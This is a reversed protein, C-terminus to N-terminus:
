QAGRAQAKAKQLEPKGMMRRIFNDIDIYTQPVGDVVEAAHAALLEAEEKPLSDGASMLVEAYDDCSIFGKGERDFVRFAERLEDEVDTSTLSRAMLLRFEPFEITGSGDQDFEKFMDEVEVDSKKMGLARLANSLRASDLGGNEDQFLSFAERLKATQEETMETMKTSSRASVRVNM